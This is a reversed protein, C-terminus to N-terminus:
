ADFGDLDALVDPDLNELAITAMLALQTIARRLAVPVHRGQVPKRPVEAAFRHRTDQWTQRLNTRPAAVLAYGRTPGSGSIRSPGNWAPCIATWPRPPHGAHRSPPSGAPTRM